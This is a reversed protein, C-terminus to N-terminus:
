FWSMIESYARELQSELNSLDADFDSRRKRYDWIHIVTHEDDEPKDLWLQFRKGAPSVIDISRVEEDKYNTHVHLSRKKAWRELIPDLMQYSM